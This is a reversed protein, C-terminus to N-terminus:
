KPPRFYNFINSFLAQCWNSFNLIDQKKFPIGYPIGLKLLLVNKNHKNAWLHHYRHTLPFVGWKTYYLPILSYGYHKLFSKFLQTNLTLMVCVELATRLGKSTGVIKTPSICEGNFTPPIKRHKTDSWFHISQVVRAWRTATAYIQSLPKITSTTLMKYFM